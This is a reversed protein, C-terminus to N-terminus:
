ALVKAKLHCDNERIEMCPDILGRAHVRKPGGENLSPAKYGQPLSKILHPYMESANYSTRFKAIYHVYYSPVNDSVISHNRNKTLQLDHM